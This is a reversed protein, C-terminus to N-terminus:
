IWFLLDEVVAEPAPPPPPPIRSTNPAIFPGRQLPWIPPSFESLMFLFWQPAHELLSFDITGQMPTWGMGPRWHLDMDICGRFRKDIAEVRPDLPCLARNPAGIRMHGDVWQHWWAAVHKMHRHSQFHSDCCHKGGPCLTCVDKWQSSQEHWIIKVWLPKLLYCKEGIWVGGWSMYHRLNDISHKNDSQPLQWEPKCQELQRELLQEGKTPRNDADVEIDVKRWEGCEVFKDLAHDGM